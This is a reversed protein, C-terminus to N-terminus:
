MLGDEVRAISESVLTMSPLLCVSAAIRLVVTPMLPMLGVARSESEPDLVFSDDNDFSTLIKLELIM